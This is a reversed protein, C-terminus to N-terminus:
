ARFVMAPDIRNIRRVPVASAAIAMVVTAGLVGLIDLARFTTVFDPVLEVAVQGVLWAAAAGAVFGPLTVFLSQSIVVRYLDRGSAGVAKLVGFERSREIAAAYTTLGVVAVGVIFGVSTLVAIVPVFTEDLERRFADAFEERTFADMAPQAEVARAISDPEVGEQLDLAVYSVTGPLGFAERADDFNMFAFQMLAETTGELVHGVEVPTGAVDIASGESLGFKRSLIRDVHVTGQPPVFAQMDPAFGPAAPDMDLAMVYFSGQEGGTDFTMQRALVPIVADVEDLAALDGIRAEDIISSSHFPDMTGAQVAWVDGPLLRFTGGTESLGRYLAIVLVILLVAFGVGGISIAFRAAEAFLNRRALLIM